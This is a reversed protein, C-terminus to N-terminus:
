RVWFSTESDGFNYSWNERRAALAQRNADAFRVLLERRPGAGTGAAPSSAPAIRFGTAQLDGVSPSAASTVARYRVVFVGRRWLELAARALLPRAVDGSGPRITVDLLYGERRSSTCAVAYGVLSRGTRAALVVVGAQPTGPGYRWRLFASDRVPACAVGSAVAEALDDFEDGIAEAVAVDAGGAHPRLRRRDAAALARGAIRAVLRPVARPLRPYAGLDMPKGARLLDGVVVAGFRQEIMSVTGVVNSAVYDPCTRFFTRMLGAAQFGHGPLAMYDTPTHAIVRTGGISYWLPVAALHGVLEGDSDLVWRHMREALPNRTLWADVMRHWGVDGAEPWGRYARPRLRHVAELDTREYSRVRARATPEVPTVV